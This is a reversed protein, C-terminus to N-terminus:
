VKCNLSILRETPIEPQFTNITREMTHYNELFFIKLGEM